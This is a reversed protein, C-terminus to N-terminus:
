NLENFILGLAGAYALTTLAFGAIPVWFARLRRGIRTVAYVASTMFGILPIMWSLFWGITFLTENCESDLTGCSDAGLATVIGFFLFALLIPAIVVLLAITTVTDITSGPYSDFPKQGPEDANTM